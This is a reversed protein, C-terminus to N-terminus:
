YKPKVLLYVATGLGFGADYPVDYEGRQDDTFFLISDRVSDFIRGFNFVVNDIFTRPDLLQINGWVNVGVEKVSRYCAQTIPDVNYLMDLFAWGIDFM